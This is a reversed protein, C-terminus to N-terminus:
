FYAFGVFSLPWEIGPLKGWRSEGARTCDSATGCGPLEVADFHALVMGLAVLVCAVLALAGAFLAARPLAAALGSQLEPVADTTVRDTTM